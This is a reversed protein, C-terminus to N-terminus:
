YDKRSDFTLWGFFAGLYCFFIDTMKGVGPLGGDGQDIFERPLILVSAILFAKRLTMDKHHAIVILLWFWIVHLTQDAIEPIM